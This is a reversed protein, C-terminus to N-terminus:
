AFHPMVKAAFLEMSRMVQVHPVLGGQNFWCILRGMNFEEGFRQLREVCAEPTDFAGMLECAQEYTMRRVRELREMPALDRTAEDIQLLHRLLLKFREDAFSRIARCWQGLLRLLM